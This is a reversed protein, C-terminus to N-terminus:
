ITSYAMSTTTTCQDTRRSASRVNRINRAAYGRLFLAADSRGPQRSHRPSTRSGTRNVMIFPVVAAMPPITKVRRFEKEKKAM